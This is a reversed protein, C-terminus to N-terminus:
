HLFCAVSQGAKKQKLVPMKNECQPMAYTCRDYFPCGHPVQALSPVTGGLLIRKRKREEVPDPVNVASLLAQTYPHCPEKYIDETNGIEVIKGCYMIAVRHSINRVVALDHSIFLLSLNLEKQLKKLLKIIQAQISVDLASVAEDALLIEPELMLARAIAIRQRQGGSFNHPYRYKAEVALGVWRLMTNIKMEIEHSSVAIIGHKRYIRLPEALISYITMRPNLASYPDQFVIQINKRIALSDKKNMKTIDKNEYRITGSSAQHLQVISNAVTSKGCGSEGVLGLTEGRRIFFSVGNLAHTFSQNKKRTFLKESHSFRVHLDEIQLINESPASM